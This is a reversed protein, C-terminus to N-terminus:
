VNEQFDAFSNTNTFKTKSNKAIIIKPTSNWPPICKVNRRSIYKIEVYQSYIVYLMHSNQM